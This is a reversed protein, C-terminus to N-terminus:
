PDQGQAHPDWGGGPRDGPRGEGLPAGDAQSATLDSCFGIWFAVYTGGPININSTIYETSTGEVGKIRSARLEDILYWQGMSDTGDGNGGEDEGTSLYFPAPLDETFEANLSADWVHATPTDDEDPASDSIYMFVKYTEIRKLLNPTLDRVSGDIHPWYTLDAIDKDYMNNWRLHVTTGPIEDGSDPTHVWTEDLIMQLNTAMAIEAFDAIGNFAQGSLTAGVDYIYAHADDKVVSTITEFTAESIYADGADFAITDNDVKGVPRSCVLSSGDYFDLYYGDATMNTFATPTTSTFFGIGSEVITTGTLTGDIPSNFSALNGQSNLCKVRFEYYKNEWQDVPINAFAEQIITDDDDESLEVNTIGLLSWASSSDWDSIYGLISHERYYFAVNRVNGDIVDFNSLTVQAFSPNHFGADGDLNIETVQMDISDGLVTTMDVPFDMTFDFYPEYQATYINFVWTNSGFFNVNVQFTEVGGDTPELDTLTYKGLEDTVDTSLLKSTTDEFAKVLAGHIPVGTATEIRGEYDAM